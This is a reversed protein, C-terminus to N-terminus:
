RRAPGASELALIEHVVVTPNVSGDPRRWLSVDSVLTRSTRPSIIVCQHQTVPMNYQPPIRVIGYSFDDLTYGGPNLASRCLAMLQRNIAGLEEAWLTPDCLEAGNLAENNLTEIQDTTLRM